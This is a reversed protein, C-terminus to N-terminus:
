HAGLNRHISSCEICILIGLNISSWEPDPSGCDACFKNGSLARVSDLIDDEKKSNKPQLCM